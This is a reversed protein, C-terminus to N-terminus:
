ASRWSNSKMWVRTLKTISSNVYKKKLILNGKKIMYNRLIEKRTNISIQIIHIIKIKLMPHHHRYLGLHCQLSQRWEQRLRNMQERPCLAGPRYFPSWCNVPPCRGHHTKLLHLPGFAGLVLLPLSEAPASDKAVAQVGFRSLQHRGLTLYAFCSIKGSNKM